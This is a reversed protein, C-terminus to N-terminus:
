GRRRSTGVAAVPSRAPDRRQAELLIDRAIPAAASAGGGGHEVVVSCAYRPAHIPAYGVFLGHHREHWPLDEQRRLGALREAMTIRRVQSTGTKGGLELGPETIRARYATGRAHNTVSNMAAVILELHSPRLGLSPWQPPEVTRDGIARTLYPRVALGGNVLRATMVALQLPTALVYGQGIAAVLSEGQQWSEGFNALKWDRSPVLGPREGPLDLDLREGLGLRRAMAAIRDIGLRRGLDYFYVDCSQRIADVVDVMGHGGRKWCHFRHNGLEMHGPCFVRHSADVIGHELAALAVVMKFTSGPPYQGAVAKNTLPAAPNSLLEEWIEASIGMTFLNPDFSPSSALAYLAGSHVDMIVATASRETLLREQVYQQLGIDLTLTIEQGPQGENRALERIVRGVANVELQRTGATGRLHIEHQKEIGSKGIRFGPLMLVPDGDLEAESVAGVYGLVHATTPGYPYSRIEGVDISIGPLDPLNVEIAAVQEWSLNERVTVPVFPRMRRVEKLIRRREPESLPVIHSLLDLTREVSRTQESVLVARFNQENVALPVGFRDLIQGRSPAVLRLSIRNEDALMAYRDAELVQLYYMRGVLASLLGLKMGGLVLTRRTLSRYRDTDREM